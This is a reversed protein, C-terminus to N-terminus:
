FELIFEFYGGLMLLVCKKPYKVVELNTRTIAAKRLINRFFKYSETVNRMQWLTKSFVTLGFPYSKFPRHFGPHIALLVTAKHNSLGQLIDLNNLINWEAGEIDM